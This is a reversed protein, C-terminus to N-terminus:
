RDILYTCYSKILGLYKEVIPLEELAHFAKDKFEEYKQSLFVQLDIGSGSPSPLEIEQIDKHYQFAVALNDVFSNLKATVSDGPRTQQLLIWFMCPIQILRRNKLCAVREYKETGSHDESLQEWYLQMGNGFLSEFGSTVLHDILEYQIGKTLGPENSILIHSAATILAISVNGTISIDLSTRDSDQGNETSTWKKIDLFMEHSIDLIEAIGILSKYRKPDLDAAELFLLSGLCFVKVPRRDLYEHFLDFFYRQLTDYDWKLEITGALAEMSGSNCVKPIIEYVSEGILTSNANYYDWLVNDMLIKSYKKKTGAAVQKIGKKLLAHHKYAEPNGTWYGEGALTLLEVDSLNDSFFCIEELAISGDKLRTIVKEKKGDKFCVPFLPIASFKDDTNETETAIVNNDDINLMRGILSVLEIHSGSALYIELGADRYENIKSLILTNLKDKIKTEFCNEWQKRFDDLSLVSLLSLADRIMEQDISRRGSKYKYKRNFLIFDERRILDMEFLYDLFIQTCNGNVITGDVDFLAAKLAM